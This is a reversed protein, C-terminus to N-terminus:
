GPWGTAPLNRDTDADKRRLWKSRVVLSQSTDSELREVDVATKTSFFRVIFYERDFFLHVPRMADPVKGEKGHRFFTM